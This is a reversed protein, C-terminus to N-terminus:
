MFNGKAPPIKAIVQGHLRLWVHAVPDIRLRDDHRGIIQVGRDQRRDM